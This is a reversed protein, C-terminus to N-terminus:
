ILLHVYLILIFVWTPSTIDKECKLVLRLEFIRCVLQCESLFCLVSFLSFYLLFSFLSFISSASVPDCGLRRLGVMQGVQAWGLYRKM